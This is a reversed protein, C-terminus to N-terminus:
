KTPHFQEPHDLLLKADEDVIISELRVRRDGVEDRQDVRGAFRFPLRAGPRPRQTRDDPCDADRRLHEQDVREDVGEVRDLHCAEVSEIADPPGDHERGVM